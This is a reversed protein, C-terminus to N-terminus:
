KKGIPSVSAVPIRFRTTDSADVGSGVTVDIDLTDEMGTTTNSCTLIAPWGQQTTDYAGMTGSWSLKDSAVAKVALGQAMDNGLIIVENLTGNYSNLGSTTPNINAAPAFDSIYPKAM